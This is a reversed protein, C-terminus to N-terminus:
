FEPWINTINAYLDPNRPTKLTLDSFDLDSSPFYTHVLYMSCKKDSTKELCRATSGLLFTQNEITFHCIMSLTDIKYVLMTAWPDKTQYTSNNTHLDSYTIVTDKNTAWWFPFTHTHHLIKHQTYWLVKKIEHKYMWIVEKNIM